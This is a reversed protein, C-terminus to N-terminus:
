GHQYLELHIGLFGAERLGLPRSDVQLLATSNGGHRGSYVRRSLRNTANAKRLGIQLFHRFVM